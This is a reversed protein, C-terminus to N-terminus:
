GKWVTKKKPKKKMEKIISVTNIAMEKTSYFGSYIRKWKSLLHKRQEIYYRNEQEYVVRWRAFLLKWVPRVLIRVVVLPWIASLILSTKLPAKMRVELGYAILAWIVFYVILTALQITTMKLEM